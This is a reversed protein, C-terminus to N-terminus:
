CESNVPDTGSRYRSPVTVVLASSTTFVSMSGSGSGTSVKGLESM